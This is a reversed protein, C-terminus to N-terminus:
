KGTAGIRVIGPDDGRIRPVSKKYIELRALLPIMGAYAPFVVTHLMGRCAASPDDGRIRPVRVNLTDVNIKYPIMGAYAPFVIAFAM